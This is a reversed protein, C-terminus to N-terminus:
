TPINEQISIMSDNRNIVSSEISENQFDTIQHFSNSTTSYESCSESGERERSRRSARKREGMKWGSFNKSRSKPSRSKISSPGLKQQSSVTSVPMSVTSQKVAPLTRHSVKFANVRRIINLSINSARRPYSQNRRTFM